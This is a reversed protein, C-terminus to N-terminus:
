INTEANFILNFRLYMCDSSTTIIDEGICIYLFRLNSCLRLADIQIRPALVLFIFIPGRLPGIKYKEAAVVRM